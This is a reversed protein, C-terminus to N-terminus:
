WARTNQWKEDDTIKQWFINKEQGAYVGIVAWSNHNHPVISLGPSWVVNVVVLDDSVFIKDYTSKNPKGLVSTLSKPNSVANKVLDLIIDRYNDKKSASICEEVFNNLDFNM